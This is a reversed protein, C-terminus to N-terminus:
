AESKLVQSETLIMIWHLCGSSYHDRFFASGMLKESALTGRIIRLWPVDIKKFSHATHHAGGVGSQIGHYEASTTSPLVQLRGMLLMMTCTKKMAPEAQTGEALTNGQHESKQGGTDHNNHCQQLGFM